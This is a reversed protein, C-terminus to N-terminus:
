RSAVREFQPLSSDTIDNYVAVCLWIAGAAGALLLVAKIIQNSTHNPDQNSM